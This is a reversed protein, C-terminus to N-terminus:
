LLSNLLNTKRIDMEFVNDKKVILVKDHLDCMEMVDSLTAEKMYKGDYPCFAIGASRCNNYSDEVWNAKKFSNTYALYETIFGMSAVPKKKAAKSRM